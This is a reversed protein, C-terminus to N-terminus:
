NLIRGGRSRGGLPEQSLPNNLEIKQEERDKRVIKYILCIKKPNFNTRLQYQQKHVGLLKDAIIQNRGM